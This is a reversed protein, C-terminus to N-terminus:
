EKLDMSKNVALIFLRACAEADAPKELVEGIYVVKYRYGL